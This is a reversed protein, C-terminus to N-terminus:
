ITAAALALVAGSSTLARVTNWRVWSSEFAARAAAPDTSGSADLANNLPINVTATIAVTGLALVLAVVTWALEPRGLHLLVAAVTLLPAGLFTGFFWPNIIVINIGQMGGVFTRDGDRGLGPLVACSFAYYTGAQLACTLLAALLCATRLFTM